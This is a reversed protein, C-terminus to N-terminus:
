IEKILGTSDAFKDVPAGVRDLLTLMLNALPADAPQALHQGGKIRGYAKGFVAPCFTLTASCLSRSCRKRGHWSLKSKLRCVARM